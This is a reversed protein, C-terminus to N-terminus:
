LSQAARGSSSTLHIENNNYRSITRMFSLNISCRWSDELSGVLKENNLGRLLGSRKMADVREDYESCVQERGEANEVVGFYVIHILVEGCHNAECKAQVVFRMEGNLVMFYAEVDVDERLVELIRGLFRALVQVKKLHSFATIQALRV